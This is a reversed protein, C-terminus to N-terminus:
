QQAKKHVEVKRLFHEDKNSADNRQMKWLIAQFKRQTGRHIQEASVKLQPLALRASDVVAVGAVLLQWVEVRLM